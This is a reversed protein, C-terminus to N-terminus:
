EIESAAKQRDRKPRDKKHADKAFPSVIGDLWRKRKEVARARTDPSLMKELQLHADMYISNPQRNLM